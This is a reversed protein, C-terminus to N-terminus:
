CFVRLCVAPTSSKVEFSGLQAPLLSFQVRTLSVGNIQVEGELVGWIELTQGDCNGTFVARPSFEVRETTFYRNRCLLWQRIGPNNGLNDSNIPTPPKIGPENHDFDIVDLANQIHLERRSGDSQLRNWDFVRYTTNSNQQVEAIIAGGLIAHVTGAPVCVFDGTQIPVTHLLSELTGDDIAERFRLSTTGARVGLVVAAGPDAHVIVWMETKGLENGEHAMAYDDDPHVQVSLKDHADLLKILLPFKGREQAWTNRTGILGLGLASHVQSLTLGALQGNTVITDGDRHAAIEWSEAIKTPPLMRGLRELNRGGWIYDKLVPEFLLPYLSINSKIEAPM